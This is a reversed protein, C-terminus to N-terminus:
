LCYIGIRSPWTTSIEIISMFNFVVTKRTHIFLILAAVPLKSSTIFGNALNTKIYTKLTELEVPELNYILGYPPQENDIQDIPHNNISTYKSLEAASYPSFVNTNNAYVSIISVKKVDLLAIQTERSPHINSGVSFVTIYVVFTEDEKNLATAAFKKKDIIEVRQITLM